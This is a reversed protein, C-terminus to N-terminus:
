DKGTSELYVYKYPHYNMINEYHGKVSPSILYNSTFTYLPVLPVESALIQEAEEFYANRMEPAAGAALRILEDYRRNSWGTGTGRDSVFYELFTNPDLYDGIWTARAIQFSRTRLNSLYVKWDQNQLTIHINLHQKWMQQVAVAIKQNNESTSYILEVAPFGQGDPYGASALLQRALEVNYPMRVRSSFGYPDAPTLNYAPIQGGRTINETIARRDIVYALAKRVRVDDLPKAQVNFRFFYTGYYPHTRYAGPYREAAKAITATPISDTKHLQGSRFIREEIQASSVPYFHIERLRVSDSDWYHYNKQVSFVKGPTWEKITFAGNGVFNEPRTWATSREDIAGFKLITKIHVPHASPHDLLQLFYPLPHALEVQLIEPSRAHVGVEAFDKLKGNYFDEANKLCFLARAYQNALAPMLARHWSDVFDQATLKEGNSWKASARIHFTYTKRDASVIWKEAAAPIIELTKPNRAVLGEYLAMELNQEPIGTTTHVDIDAPEDRNGVHLIQRENGIEVLTKHSDKCGAVLAIFSVLFCCKRM